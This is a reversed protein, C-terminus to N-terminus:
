VISTFVKEHYIEMREVKQEHNLKLVVTCDVFVNPTVSSKVICPVIPLLTIIVREYSSQNVESRKSVELLPQTANNVIPDDVSETNSIVLSEDGRRQQETQIDYLKTGSMRYKSMVIVERERCQSGCQDEKVTRQENLLTNYYSEFSEPSWQVHKIRSSTDDLSIILDPFAITMAIFYDAISDSGYIERSVAGWPGVDCSLTKVRLLCDVTCYSKMVQRLHDCNSTNIADVIFKFYSLRLDPHLSRIFRNLKTSSRGDNNDDCRRKKKKTQNSKDYTDIFDIRHESKPQTQIENMLSCVACLRM